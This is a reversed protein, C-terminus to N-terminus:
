IILHTCSYKWNQDKINLSPLCARRSKATAQVSQNYSEKSDAIQHKIEFGLGKIFNGEIIDHQTYTVRQVHTTGSQADTTSLTAMIRTDPQSILEEVDFDPTAVFIYIPPIEWSSWSISHPALASANKKTFITGIKSSIKGGPVDILRCITVVLSVNIVQRKGNNRIKFRYTKRGSNKTSLESAVQTSISVDPKLVLMYKWFLWTAILGVIFGLITGIFLEM